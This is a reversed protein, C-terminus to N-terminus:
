REYEVQQFDKSDSSWSFYTNFEKLVKPMDKLQFGPRQDLCTMVFNKKYEYSYCNDINMAQLILNFDIEGIRFDRQWENFINIEDNTNILNIEKNNSMWGNGHRTQYCRTVYFIEIDKIDLKKCIELANKSTTNAYTVNPFIGHDKDLLIGQSGEFILEDFNNLYDYNRLVIVENSILFDISDLYEKLLINNFNDKGNFTQYNLKDFYYKKINELKRELIEKNFLDLAYLQYPSDTVRKMTAGVGLGCSGHKNNKETIQNFLVDAPTTLKALPNIYLKPYYGLKEQLVESENNMTIPYITCHESFYSEIGRLTGSCFNSHVHTKEGIVVNHGCQQGGSFRIVIKKSFSQRCLFDTTIGKGEDGFGLGLVIKAQKM